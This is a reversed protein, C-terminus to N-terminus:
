GQPVRMEGCRARSPFDRTGQTAFLDVGVLQIRMFLRLTRYSQDPTGVLVAVLLQGEVLHLDVRRRLTSLPLQLAGLATAQQHVDFSQSTMHRVAARLAVDFTRELAASPKPGLLLSIM